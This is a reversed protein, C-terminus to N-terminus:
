CVCVCRYAHVHTNWFVHTHTCVSACVGVHPRAWVFACERVRVQLCVHVLCERVCGHKHAHTYTRPTAHTHARTHQCARAHAFACPGWGCVGLNYRVRVCARKQGSWVWGCARAGVRTCVWVCVMQQASTRVRMFGWECMHTHTCAPTHTCVHACVCAHARTRMGTRVCMHPITRCPDIM